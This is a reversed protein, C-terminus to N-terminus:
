SKAISYRVSKRPNAAAAVPESVDIVAVDDLLKLREEISYRKYPPFDCLTKPIIKKTAVLNLSSDLLHKRNEKINYLHYSCSTEKLLTIQNQISQLELTLSEATTLQNDIVQELAASLTNIDTAVTTLAEVIMQKTSNVVQRRKEPIQETNKEYNLRLYSHQLAGIGGRIVEARRGLESIAASIPRGLLQADTLQASKGKEM